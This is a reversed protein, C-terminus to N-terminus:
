RPPWIWRRRLARSDRIPVFQQGTLLRVSDTPQRKRRLQRRRRAGSLLMFHASKRFAVRPSDASDPVFQGCHMPIRRLRNSPHSSSPKIPAFALANISQTPYRRQLLVNSKTHVVPRVGRSPVPGSLVSEELLSGRCLPRRVRSSM